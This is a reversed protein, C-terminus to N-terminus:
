NGSDEKNAKNNNKENKNDSNKKDEQGGSDENNNGSESEGDNSQKSKTDTEASEVTGETESNVTESSAGDLRLVRIQEAVNQYYILQQADEVSLSVKVTNGTSEGGSNQDVQVVNVKQFLRQSTMNDEKKYVVVIDVKDGETLQQDLIVNETVNLLVVRHDAPISTSERVVYPTIFNGKELDVVVIQNELDAKRNFYNGTEDPKSIEKWTIDDSSLTENSGIDNAAVAVEVTEGSEAAIKQVQQIVLGSVVVALIFALLLFIFAKRKADVM